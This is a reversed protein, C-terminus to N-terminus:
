RRSTGIFPYPENSLFYAESKESFVCKKWLSFTKQSLVSGHKLEVNLLLHQIIWYNTHVDLEM